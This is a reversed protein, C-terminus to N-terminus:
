MFFHIIWAWFLFALPIGVANILMKGLETPTDNSNRPQMTMYTVILDIGIAQVMSINPMGIPVIYWGWAKSLVLGTLTFGIATIIVGAPFKKFENKLYELKKLDKNEM